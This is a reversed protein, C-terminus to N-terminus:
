GKLAAEASSLCANLARVSQVASDAASMLDGLSLLNGGRAGRVAEVISQVAAAFGQAASNAEWMQARVEEPLTSPVGNAAAGTAYNSASASLSVLVTEDMGTLASSASTSGGAVGELLAETIGTTGFVRAVPDAVAAKWSLYAQGQATDALEGAGTEGAGAGTGGKTGSGANAADTVSASAAGDTGATEASATSAASGALGAVGSAAGATAQWGADIADTAQSAASSVSDVIGQVSSSIEDLSAQVTPSALTYVLCAMFALTVLGFLIKSVISLVKHVMAFGEPMRKVVCRVPGM